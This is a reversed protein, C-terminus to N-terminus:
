VLSGRGVIYSASEILSRSDVKEIVVVRVRDSIPTVVNIRRGRHKTFFRAVNAGNERSPIM